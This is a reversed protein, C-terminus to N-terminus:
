TWAKSEEHRETEELDSIESDGEEVVVHFKDIKKNYRDKRLPVGMMLLFDPYCRYLTMEDQFNGYAILIGSWDSMGLSEAIHSSQSSTPGECVLNSNNLVVTCLLLLCGDFYIICYLPSLGTWPELWERRQTGVDARRRRWSTPKWCPENSMPFLPM